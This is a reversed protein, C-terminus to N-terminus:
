WVENAINMAYCSHHHECKAVSLCRGNGELGGGTSSARKGPDKKQESEKFSAPFPSHMLLLTGAEGDNPKRKMFFGM